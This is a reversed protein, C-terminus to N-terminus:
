IRSPVRTLAAAAVLSSASGLSEVTRLASLAPLRSRAALERRMSEVLPDGFVDVLVGSFYVTTVDLLAAATAIARGVMIGTREVVSETARRLPRGLEREIATSSAYAALCGKAGCVCEFGNPEVTIHALSAANGHAGRLREGQLVCASDVTSDLLLVLYSDARDEPALTGAVDAIAAARTDLHVPLGTLEELQAALPFGRWTAIMQPSVAGADVDIPGTCSAGVAHPKGADAPSAAVVRRILGELGRWVDRNPIAIRDRVLVVGDDDVIGAAFRGPEIAVALM